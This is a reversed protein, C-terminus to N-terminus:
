PLMLAQGSFNIEKLKNGSANRSAFNKELVEFNQRINYKKCLDLMMEKAIKFSEPIEYKLGLFMRFMTSMSIDWGLIVGNSEIFNLPMGKEKNDLVLHLEFMETIPKKLGTFIVSDDQKSKAFSLRGGSKEIAAICICILALFEPRTSVKLKYERLVDAELVVVLANEKTM